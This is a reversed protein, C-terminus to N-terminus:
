QPNDSICRGNPKLNYIIATQDRYVVPAKDLLPADLPVRPNWALYQMDYDSCLADLRIAQLVNWFEADRQRLTNSMRSVYGFAIPKEHIMQYYMVEATGKKGGKEPKFVRGVFDLVGGNGPLSRLAYVYAPVTLPKTPFQRPLPELLMLCGFGIGVIQMWRPGEFMLQLGYACLMAASLSVMVMMRIPVGSANLIPLVQTLAGYPLPINSFAKGNWHLIPGLSLVLFVFLLLYWLLVNQARWRKYQSLVFGMMILASVSLAVNEEETNWPWRSWFYKTWEAFRWNSGPVFLQMLDLSFRRAPHGTVPSTVLEVALALVFPLVTVLAVGLFTALAKGQDRKLGRQRVLWWVGMVGAAIVCYFAYYYDCLTVAGLSVASLVGMKVSPKIWLAYWAMVFLPIWELSALQMHGGSQSLHYSSFTFVYGAVLSPSYSKTVLFALYFATLGGVVFSFLIVLNYIQTFSLLPLLALAMFGNFPSLTHTWLSVGYPYHLFTTHWPLQGLAFLSKHVWWLNWLSQWGDPIGSWLRDSFTTILPFTLLVFGLLYFSAPLVGFWFWVNRDRRFPISYPM